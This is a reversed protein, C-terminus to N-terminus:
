SLSRSVFSITYKSSLGDFIESVEHIL